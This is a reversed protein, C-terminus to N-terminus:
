GFEAPVGPGVLNRGMAHMGVTAWGISCSSASDLACACTGHVIRRWLRGHELHGVVPASDNHVIVGLLDRVGAPHRCATASAGPSASDGM